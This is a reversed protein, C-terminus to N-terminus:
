SEEDTKAQRLRRPGTDADDADSEDRLYRIADAAFVQKMDYFKVASHDRSPTRPPVQITATTM